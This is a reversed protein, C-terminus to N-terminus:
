QGEKDCYAQSEKEAVLQRVQDLIGHGPQTRILSIVCSLLAQYNKLAASAEEPEEGCMRCIGEAYGCAIGFPQFMPVVLM